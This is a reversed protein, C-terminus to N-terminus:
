QVEMKTREHPLRRALLTSRVGFFFSMCFYSSLSSRSFSLTAGFLCECHSRCFWHPRDYVSISARSTCFLGAVNELADCDAGCCVPYIPGAASLSGEIQPSARPGPHLSVCLPWVFALVQDIGPFIASCGRRGRHIMSHTTATSNGFGNIQQDM